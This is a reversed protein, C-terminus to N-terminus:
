RVGFVDTIAAATADHRGLTGAAFIEEITRLLSYHDYPQDSVAGPRVGAGSLSCYVQNPGSPRGEDFVVIFLMGTRFREDALLPEFRKRLWTDAFAVGTDHGDNKLNPVYLSFRPLTENRVDDDLQGAEVVIRACREPDSQVNAFDLFPVHKRAYPGFTAGLFCGGPYNEAYVKWSLGRADLLDGLHPAPITVLGDHDVGYTSGGVLAIYNPQSPHTLAHYNRLSAGRAALEALFPQQDARTADENELVVVMVRQVEAIGGPRGVARRRTAATAPMGFALVLLSLSMASRAIKMTAM